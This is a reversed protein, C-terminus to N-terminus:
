CLIATANFKTPLGRKHTACVLPALCAFRDRGSIYVNGTDLAYGVSCTSQFHAQAILYCKVGRVSRGANDCTARGGKPPIRAM